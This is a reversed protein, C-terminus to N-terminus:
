VNTDRASITVFPKDIIDALRFSHYEFHSRWEFLPSPDLTYRLRQGARSMWTWRFNPVAKQGQRSLSRQFLTQKRTLSAGALVSGQALCAKLNSLTLMSGDKKKQSCMSLHSARLPYIWNLHRRSKRVAGTSMRVRDMDISRRLSLHRLVYWRSAKSQPWAKRRKCSWKWTM